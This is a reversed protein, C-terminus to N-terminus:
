DYKVNNYLRIGRIEMDNRLDEYTNSAYHTSLHSRSDFPLLWDGDRYLLEKRLVKQSPDLELPIVRDRLMLMPILANSRDFILNKINWSPGIDPNFRARYTEIDDIILLGGVQV